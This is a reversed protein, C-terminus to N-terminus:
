RRNLAGLLVGAADGDGLPCCRLLSFCDRLIQFCFFVFFDRPLGVKWSKVVGSIRSYSDQTRCEVSTYVSKVKVRRVATRLEARMLKVTPLESSAM